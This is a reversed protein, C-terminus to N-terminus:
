LARLQLSRISGAVHGRVYMLLRRPRSSLPLTWPAEGEFAVSLERGNWRAEFALEQAIEATGQSHSTELTWDDDSVFRVAGLRAHVRNERHELSIVAGTGDRAELLLGFPVAKPVAPASSMIALWGSLRWGGRRLATASMAGTASSSEAIVVGPRESHLNFTGDRRLTVWSTLEGNRVDKFLSLSEGPAIPGLFPDAEVSVTFPESDAHERGDDIRLTWRMQYDRPAEPALFRLQPTPPPTSGIEPGLVRIWEYRLHRGDAPNSESAALVVWDGAEVRETGSVVPRQLPAPPDVTLAETSDTHGADNVVPADPTRPAIAEPIAPDVRNSQDGGPPRANPDMAVPLPTVIPPDGESPESASPWLLWATGALAAAGAAVAAIRMSRPARRTAPARALSMLGDLRGILEDYSKPRDDVSTALMSRVLEAVEPPAERRIRRPDPQSAASTKEAILKSMTRQPFALEGTIMHYLVCGLGYVDARWDVGDPDDFQEPAMTAPTGMVVGPETLSLRDTDHTSPRALGLDALKAHYPFESGAAAREDRQLLINEPKVDRHIIGAGHAHMLATAIDRCVALSQSLALPEGRDLWQRLSPGDIFEMVLFCDGARTVGAQHCAVIHPHTLGALIRAERHFRKEFDGGRFRPHLLKVAVTRDLFTQVGKYVVGMGGHGILSSLAVGPVEPLSNSEAAPQILTDAVDEGVRMTADPGPRVEEASPPKPVRPDIWTREVDEDPTRAGRARGGDDSM